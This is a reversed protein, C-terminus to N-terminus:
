LLISRKEAQYKGLEVLYAAEYDDANNVIKQALEVETEGLGRAQALATLQPVPTATDALQERARAEQKPWGAIEEYPVQGAINEIAAKFKKEAQALAFKGQTSRAALPLFEAISIETLGIEPPQEAILANIDADTGEISVVNTDYEKITLAEDNVANFRLTTYENQVPTYKFLRAM